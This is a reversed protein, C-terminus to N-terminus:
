GVLIARCHICRPPDEKKVRGLEAASLKLHCASCTDGSLRGVVRGDHSARLGDYMEILYEDVLAITASKRDEKIALEKDIVRWQDTISAGLNEKEQTAALLEAGLRDINSEALEEAEIYELVQIEISSVKAHLNEVERRLYDADRASLGGAYLRNQESAAREASTGLDLNAKALGSDAAELADQAETKVGTLREVEGHARKYEELEPLSSRRELLRDIELDMEMLELLDELSKFEEVNPGESIRKVLWFRPTSKVITSHMTGRKEGAREAPNEM